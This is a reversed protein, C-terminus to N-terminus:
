QGFLYSDIVKWSIIGNNVSYSLLMNGNTHGDEFYDLVWKDLIVYIKDKFFAMKGGLVGDFPILENHKLLDSIVQNPGGNFGKRNLENLITPDNSPFAKIVEADNAVQAKLDSIESILNAERLTWSIKEGELDTVRQNVITLTTQYKAVVIVSIAITVSLVLIWMIRERKSVGAAM